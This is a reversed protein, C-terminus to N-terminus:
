TPRFLWLRQPSHASGEAPRGRASKGRGGGPPGRRKAQLTRLTEIESADTATSDNAAATSSRTTSTAAPTPGASNTSRATAGTTGTACPASCSSAATRSRRASSNGSETPSTVVSTLTEVASLRSAREELGDVDAERNAVEFREFEDVDILVIQVDEADVALRDDIRTGEVHGRIDGAVVGLASEALDLGGALLASGGERLGDLARRAAGDPNADAEGDGLNRSPISEDRRDLVHGFLASALAVKRRELLRDVGDVGPDGDRLVVSM